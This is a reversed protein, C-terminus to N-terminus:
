GPEQAPTILRFKGAGIQIFQLSKLQDICGATEQLIGRPRMPM